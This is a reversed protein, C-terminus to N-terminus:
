YESLMKLEVISCLFICYRCFLEVGYLNKCSSDCLPINYYIYNYHKVYNKSIHSNNIKELFTLIQRTQLQAFSIGYVNAMCRLM